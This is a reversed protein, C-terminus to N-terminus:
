FYDILYYLRIKFILMELILSPYFFQAALVTRIRFLVKQTGSEASQMKPHLHPPIGFHDKSIRVRLFKLNSGNM